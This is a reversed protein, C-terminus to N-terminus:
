SLMLTTVLLWSNYSEVSATLVSNVFVNLIEGKGKVPIVCILSM